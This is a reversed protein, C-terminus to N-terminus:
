ASYSQFSRAIPIPQDDGQVLRITHSQPDVQLVSNVSPTSKQGFSACLGFLCLGGNSRLQREVKYYTDKSMSLEISPGFGVLLSDTIRNLVGDKPSFGYNFVHSQSANNGNRVSMPDIRRVTDFNHGFWWGPRVKLLRLGKWSMRISVETSFAQSLSKKSGLDFNGSPSGFIWSLSPSSFTMETEGRNRESESKSVQRISYVFEDKDSNRWSKLVNSFGSIDWRPAYRKRYDGIGSGDDSSALSGYSAGSNVARQYEREETIYDLLSLEREPLVKVLSKKRSWEESDFNYESVRNKLHEDLMFGGLAELPLEESIDAEPWSSAKRESGGRKDFHHLPHSVLEGDKARTMQKRRYKGFHRTRDPFSLSEDSYAVAMNVGPVSEENLSKALDVDILAQRLAATEGGYVSTEMESLKLLAYDLNTKRFSYEPEYGKVIYVEFPLPRYRNGHVRRMRETYLEYAEMSSVEAQRFRRTAESAARVAAEYNEQQVASVKPLQIANKLWVAYASSYSGAGVDAPLPDALDFLAKNHEELRVSGLDSPMLPFFEFSKRKQEPVGLFDLYIDILQRWYSFLSGDEFSQSIEGYGLAQVTANKSILKNLMTQMNEFGNIGSVAPSCSVTALLVVLLIAARKM